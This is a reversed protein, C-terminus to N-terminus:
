VFSIQSTCYACCKWMCVRKALKPVSTQKCTNSTITKWGKISRLPIDWKGLLLNLRKVRVRWAVDNSKTKETERNELASQLKRQLVALSSLSLATKATSPLSRCLKQPNKTSSQLCTALVLHGHVTGEHVSRCWCWSSARLNRATDDLDTTWPAKAPKQVHFKRKWSSTSIHLTTSKHWVGKTSIRRRKWALLRLLRIVTRCWYIAVRCLFFNFRDWRALLSLTPHDPPLFKPADGVKTGHSVAIEAELAGQLPEGQWRCSLDGASNESRQRMVGAVQEM